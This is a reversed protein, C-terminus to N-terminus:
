DDQIEWQNDRRIRIHQNRSGRLKLSLDKEAEIFPGDVLIDITNLINLLNEDSNATLEEFTYGTWLTITIHPYAHRVADIVEWTMDINQPALPEGGLVSFNRTINNASIAKIITWKVDPSYPQGDRFDWTEENFCGLCHHPCGQVFFSVCVGEGNVVDNPIIASYRSM